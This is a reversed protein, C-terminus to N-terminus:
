WRSIKTGLEKNITDVLVWEPETDRAGWGAYKNMLSLMRDRVYLALAIKESPKQTIASKVEKLLNDLEINLAKAAEDCPMSTTYLQWEEATLSISRPQPDAVSAEGGAAQIAQQAPAGIENWWINQESESM